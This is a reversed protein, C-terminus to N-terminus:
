KGGFVNGVMPGLMDLIGGGGGEGNPGGGGLKPIKKRLESLERQIVLAVIRLAMLVFFLLVSVVVLMVAIFWVVTDASIEIIM